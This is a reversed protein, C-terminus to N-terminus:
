PREVSPREHLAIGVTPVILSAVYIPWLNAGYCRFETTTQEAAEFTVTRSSYRGRQVKLTHRGPEIPVETTGHPEITAAREGDVVVDFPGRHLELGFGERVLRLTTSSPM